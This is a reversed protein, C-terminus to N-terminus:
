KAATVCAVAAPGGGTVDCKRKGCAAAKCAAAQTKFCRKGVVFFCDDRDGSYRWGGWKGGPPDTEGKAIAEQRQKERATTPENASPASSGGCGVALATVVAFLSLRLTRLSM